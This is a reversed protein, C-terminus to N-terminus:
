KFGTQKRLKDVNQVATKIQQKQAPKTTYMNRQSMQDFISFQDQSCETMNSTMLRRLTVNSAETINGAYDKVLRKEQNLLDALLEQESLSAGNKSQSSM